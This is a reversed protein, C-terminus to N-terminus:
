DRGFHQYWCGADHMSSGKRWITALAPSSGETTKLSHLFARAAEAVICCGALVAIHDFHTNLDQLLLAYQM